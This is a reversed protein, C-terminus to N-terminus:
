SKAEVRKGWGNFGAFNGNDRSGGLFGTGEEPFCGFGAPLKPRVSKSIYRYPCYLMQIM